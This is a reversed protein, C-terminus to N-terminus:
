SKRNGFQLGLSLSEDGRGLFPCRMRSAGGEGWRIRLLRLLLPHLVPSKPNSLGARKAVSRDRHLQGISMPGHDLPLLDHIIQQVRRMAMARALGPEEARKTKAHLLPLNQGCCQAFMALTVVHRSRLFCSETRTELHFAFQRRRRCAAV